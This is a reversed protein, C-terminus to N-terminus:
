PKTCTGLEKDVEKNPYDGLQIFITGSGDAKFWKGYNLHGREWNGEIYDGPQAFREEADHMDIRRRSHFRLVGYGDPYGDILTGTFTNTKAYATKVRSKETATKMTEPVSSPSEKEDIVSSTVIPSPIEEKIVDQKNLFLVGGLVFLCLVFFLAIPWFTIRKRTVKAPINIITEIHRHERILKEVDAFDKQINKSAQIRQKSSLFYELDDDFANEVLCYPLIQKQNNFALTVENKVHESRCSEKSCIVVVIDTARLARTIEGAYNGTAIDRPAIWCPLGSRELFACLQDAVSQDAHGYSIFVKEM